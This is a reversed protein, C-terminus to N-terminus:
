LLFVRMLAYAAVARPSDCIEITAFDGLDNYDINNEIYYQKLSKPDHFCEVDDETTLEILEFGLDSRTCM